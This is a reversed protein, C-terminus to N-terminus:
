DATNKTRTIELIKLNKAKLRSNRFNKEIVPVIKKACYTRVIKTVCYRQKSLIRSGTAETEHLEVVTSM